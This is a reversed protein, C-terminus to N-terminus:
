KVLDDRGKAAAFNKTQLGQHLIGRQLEILSDSIFSRRDDDRFRPKLNENRNWAMLSKMQDRVVAKYVLMM